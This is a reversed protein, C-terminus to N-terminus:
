VELKFDILAGGIDNCRYKVEVAYEETSSNM